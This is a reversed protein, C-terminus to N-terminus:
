SAHTVFPLSSRITGSLSSSSNTSAGSSLRFSSRVANANWPRHNSQRPQRIPYMYQMFSTDLQAHVQVQGQLTMLYSILKIFSAEGTISANNSSHTRKNSNENTKTSSHSHSYIPTVRLQSCSCSCLCSSLVSAVTFGSFPATHFSSHLYSIFACLLFSFKLASALTYVKTLLFLAM